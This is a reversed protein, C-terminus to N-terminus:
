LAVQSSVQPTRGGGRAVVITTIEELLDPNSDLRELPGRRKLEIRALDEPGALLKARGIQELWRDVGGIESRFISYAPIGLYAAERLMTGGSCVVLDVSKLLSVFEVPRILTIPQHRWALGDLLETQSPERPSFVVLADTPALQELTARAMATSAKQYYHSTESPPRFLVRVADDPVPGLDYPDIADIDVGAFTLDEKLGRFAILQGARVGQRLFATPDIVDPYLITTGTLRYVRTHAHEYDGIVYSPIGLRWAAVAAPRSAALVADARGTRAIFRQLELARLGGAAVKRLKGRGVPSGFVQAKTGVRELMEVTSGYDRATIVTKGGKAEFAECFPLLYQVQPPNEIDIWIKVPRAEAPQIRRLPRGGAGGYFEVRANNAAPGVVKWTGKQRELHSAARHRWWASVDRPLARWASADKAFCDLFRSYARLVREDVLYDPHTNILALGGHARLFETKRVWVEEDEHRLIVFLTHDQTLTVPLEVMGENFFPLWTCCGGPQPEFPDTDPCSSDYDFGLLPMWEAHRYMAPSRFGGAGWREAADRMAPLRERLTAISELDRGDHHLGHVGVEFGDALLARVQEDDIEYRQPVLNWSSRLGHARELDLVPDLAAWGSDLEVDHTLVLAWAHEGPWAAIYPVPEGAIGALVEFMLEFFDHLCTEVPWQPFRSRAQLRAFRRRLWIQLPRPILPRLRYYSVILGRRLNRAWSGGTIETYRETWYNVIVEDPDFPLFVSGDEGRWISALPKDDAGVLTPGRSWRSAGGSLRAEVADDSLLSAFIRIGTDRDDCRVTAAVPPSRTIACPWLLLPGGTQPRLQEVHDRTQAAVVQYPIRFHELFTLRRSSVFM